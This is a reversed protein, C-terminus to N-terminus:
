VKKGKGLLEKCDDWYKKNADDAAILKEAEKELQYQIKVKKEPCKKHDVRGLSNKKSQENDEIDADQLTRKNKSKSKSKTESTTSATPFIYNEPYQFCM